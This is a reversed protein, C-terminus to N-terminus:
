LNEVSQVELQYIERLTDASVEEVPLDFQIRGDRIAIIRTFYAKIYEVSHISAILTQDEEKVLDVLLSLVSRARAPDLSSIPEDALVISPNQVLLRALAVRQQEGGSLNGTKEHIKDLIGVRDLAEEALPKEQTIILNLFSKWFGWQNLRGALVNNVVTLQNVLDFQQRIVGIKRAYEKRHSISVSPVGDILMEGTDPKIINAIVNLITTKGAGSPGILAVIEGKKVSFSINELVELKDFAVSIQKLELVNKAAM